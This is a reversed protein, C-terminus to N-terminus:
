QILCDPNPRLEFNAKLFGKWIKGKGGGALEINRGVFSPMSETEAVESWEV